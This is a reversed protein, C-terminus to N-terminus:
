RPPLSALHRTACAAPAPPPQAPWRRRHRCMPTETPCSPPDWGGHLTAVPQRPLCGGCGMAAHQNSLGQVRQERASIAFLTLDRSQWQNASIALFILDVHVSHHRRQNNAASNKVARIGLSLKAHRRFSIGESRERRKKYRSAARQKHHPRLM